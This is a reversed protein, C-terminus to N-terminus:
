NAITVGVHMFHGKCRQCSVLVATLDFKSFWSQVQPIQFSLSPPSLPPFIDLSGVSSFAPWGGAPLNASQAILISTYLLHDSWYVSNSCIYTLIVPCIRLFPQPECCMDGDKVVQVLLFDLLSPDEQLVLQGAPGSTGGSM